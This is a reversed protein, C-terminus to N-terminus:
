LPGFLHKICGGAHCHGWGDVAPGAGIMVVVLLALHFRILPGGFLAHAVGGFLPIPIYEIPYGCRTPLRM